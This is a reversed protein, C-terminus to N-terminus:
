RRARLEREAQLWNEAARNHPYGEGCWIEFARRAIAEHALEPKPAPVVSVAPKVPAPVVSITPKAAPKPTEVIKAVPKPAEVIKAVPRPAVVIKAVPKSTKKEIRAM